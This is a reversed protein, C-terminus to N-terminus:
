FVCYDPDADYWPRLDERATEPSPTWPHDDYGALCPTAEPDLAAAEAHLADWDAASPEYAYAAEAWFADDSLITLVVAVDEILSSM